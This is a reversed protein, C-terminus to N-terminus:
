KASKCDASCGDGGTTNGDDCAEGADLRGDGCRPITCDLRCGSPTSFASLNAPASLALPVRSLDGDLYDWTAIGAAFTASVDISWSGPFPLGSIAGGDTNDHFTWDGIVADGGGAFLEKPGDDTVSVFAGTPLHTVSMQVAADPQGVGTADVDIGHEIVLSLAGTTTDRYLWLHSAGSAELGTHGSSSSYAYFAAVSKARDVPRVARSLAGQTLLLAPREENGAGLDCQEVGAQVFGDGCKAFLCTSPCADGDDADGDDCDEGPDVVGDGCTPLACNRQCGDGDIANGDDCAEDGNRLHDGCYPEVEPPGPARDGHLPTRAGCGAIAAGALLALAVGPRM